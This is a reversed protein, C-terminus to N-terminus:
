KIIIIKETIVNNVTNLSLYYMGAPYKAMNILINYEGEKKNQNDIIKEVIKGTVDILNLSINESENISFSIHSIGNAPNPSCMLSANNDAIEDISAEVKIAPPFIIYDLFACDDGSSVSGDKQFIWKFVHAGPTVVYQAKSWNVDEGDWRDKSNGDILFEMYDYWTTTGSGTYEECSVKKWFSITDQSSVDLTVYLESTQGDDIDGSKASYLGEYPATGTIIWPTNGGMQWDFKTFDNTEFDEM